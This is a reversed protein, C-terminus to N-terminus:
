KRAEYRTLLVEDTLVMGTKLTSYHEYELHTENHILMFGFGTENFTARVTVDLLPYEEEIIDNKNGAVGEVITVLADINHYPGEMRYVTGKYIPYQREYAHTHGSFYLNYNYDNLASFIELLSQNNKTCNYVDSSCFFPYHSAAVRWAREHSQNCEQRIANAYARTQENTANRFVQPFMDLSLFSAWKFYYTQIKKTTSMNYVQFSGSFLVWTNLRLQEHNGPTFIVPWVVAIEELMGLFTLYNQCENTDLDYAIDGQIMMGDVDTRNTVVLKKLTDLIPIYHQHEPHGWDAYM